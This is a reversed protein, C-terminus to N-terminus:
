KINFTEECMKVQAETRNVSWEVNSCYANYKYTADEANVGYWMAFLIFLELMTKYNILLLM